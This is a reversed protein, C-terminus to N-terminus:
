DKKRGLIFAIIGFVIPVAIIAGISIGPLLNIGLFAGIATFAGRLLSGFDKDSMQESLGKNYGYEYGVNYWHERGFNIGYEKGDKYGDDYGTYYDGDMSGDLYGDYYGDEYGHGYMDYMVYFASDDRFLVDSNELIGYYQEFRAKSLTIRVYFVTDYNGVDIDEIVYSNTTRDFKTHNFSFFLRTTFFYEVRSLDEVIGGPLRYTVVWEYTNANEVDFYTAEWRTKVLTSAFQQQEQAKVEKNPLMFLGLPVFAILFLLKYIWKRM